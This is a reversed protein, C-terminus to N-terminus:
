HLGCQDLFHRVAACWQASQELAIFHGCHAFMEVRVGPILATGIADLVDPLKTADVWGRDGLLALTPVNITPLWPRADFALISDWVSAPVRGAAANAFSKANIRAQVALDVTPAFLDFMRMGEVFHPFADDIILAKVSGPYQRWYDLAIMGGLSHGHLIAPQAIDLAAMLGHLDQALDAIGAPHDFLTADSLGHFRLDPIIVRFDRSLDAAVEAFDAGDRDHGHVLVITPLAAPNLERVIFRNNRILHIRHILM